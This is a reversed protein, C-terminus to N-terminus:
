MRALVGLVGDKIIQSPVWYSMGKNTGKDVEVLTIPEGTFPQVRREAILGTIVQGSKEDIFHCRPRGKSPRKIM